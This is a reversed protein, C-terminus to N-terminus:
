FISIFYPLFIIIGTVFAALAATLVAAASVDKIIKAKPNKDPYLEDVVLEIATNLAETAMVLGVCLSVAVWEATTIDFYFGGAIVGVLALLHLRFNREKSFLYRLGEIAYWFSKM